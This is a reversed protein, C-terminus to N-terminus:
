GGISSFDLPPQEEATVEFAMGNVVAIVRDGLSFADGLEPFLAILAFYDESAFQVKTTTMTSPDFTTDTWVGDQQVYTRNGVIRVVDAAEEVPAAAVEADAM